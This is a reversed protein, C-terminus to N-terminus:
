RLMYSICSQLSNVQTLLISTFLLDTETQDKMIDANEHM